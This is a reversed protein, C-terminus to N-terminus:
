NASDVKKEGSVNELEKALSDATNQQSYLIASFIFFPVLFYKLNYKM